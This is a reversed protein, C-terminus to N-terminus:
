WAEDLKKHNLRIHIMEAPVAENIKSQGIEDEGYFAKLTVSGM